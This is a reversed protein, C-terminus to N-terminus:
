CRDMYMEVKMKVMKCSSRVPAVFSTASNSGMHLSPIVSRRCICTYLSFHRGDLNFWEITVEARAVLLLGMYATHSALM